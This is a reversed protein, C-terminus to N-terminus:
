VRSGEWLQCQRGLALRWTTLYWAASLFILHGRGRQEFAMEGRLSAVGEGEILGYPETPVGIFALCALAGIAILGTVSRRVAPNDM